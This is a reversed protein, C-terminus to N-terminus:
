ARPVLLAGAHGPLTVTTGDLDVGSETEFRLELRPEVETTVHETGFNVLVVVEGRRMTFLRSEEAVSCRTNEFVPDTLDPLERRLSILSRYVDLMRAHREEELESWDLKSRLFTEPDQPDPVVDGDWGHTASVM